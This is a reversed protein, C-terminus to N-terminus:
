ILRVFFTMDFFAAPCWLFTERSKGLRRTMMLFGGFMMFGSAVVSPM